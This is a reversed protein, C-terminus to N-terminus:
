RVEWVEFAGPEDKEAPGYWKDFQIGVPETEKAWRTRVRVDIWDYGAEGVAFRKADNRTPYFEKPLWILEGDNFWIGMDLNKPISSM